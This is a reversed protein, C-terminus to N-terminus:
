GSKKCTTNQDHQSGTETRRTGLVLHIVIGHHFHHGCPLKRASAISEWCIACKCDDHDRQLEYSLNVLPCSAQVLHLIRRYNAHRRLRVVLQAYLVRLQMFIVLSAMSLLMNARLLMHVHHVLDLVLCCIEVTLEVYYSM